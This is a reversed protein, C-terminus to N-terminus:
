VFEISADDPRYNKICTLLQLTRFPYDKERLQGSIPSVIKVKPVPGIQLKNFHESVTQYTSFDIRPDSAIQVRESLTKDSLDEGMFEVLYLGKMMAILYSTKELEYARIAQLDDEHLYPIQDIAINEGRLLRAEADQKRKYIEYLPGFQRDEQRFRDKLAKQLLVTDGFRPYQFVCNFDKNKYKVHKKIDEPIAYYEITDLNIEFTQKIKGSELGLLWNKYEATEKGGYMENKMWLKDTDDAEYPIDKLTHSYFSAYFRLCLEAVEQEYFKGIDVDKELIISQLLKTVKTPIEEQAISGLELAEEVSFNRIHIFPPAGYKGQTSFYIRAYGPPINNVEEINAELQSLQKSLETM